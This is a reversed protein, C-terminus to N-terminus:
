SVTSHNKPEELKKANGDAFGTVFERWVTTVAYNGPV